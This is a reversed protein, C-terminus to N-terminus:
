ALSRNKRKLGLFAAGFLMLMASTPEPVSYTGGHFPMISAQALDAMSLTGSTAIATAAIEAYTTATATASIAYGSWVSASYTGLEIYYSYAGTNQSIGSIDVSKAAPMLYTAPGESNDLQAYDVVKNGNSDELVFMAYSLNAASVESIGSFNDTDDVQWYLYSAQASASIAVIAVFAILKKM